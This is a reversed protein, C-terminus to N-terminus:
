WTWKGDTFHQLILGLDVMHLAFVRGVTSDSSGWFQRIFTLVVQSPYAYDNLTFHLHSWSRSWSPFFSLLKIDLWVIFSLQLPSSMAGTPSCISAQTHTQDRAGCSGFLVAWTIRYYFFLQVVLFWHSRKFEDWWFVSIASSIAKGMKLEDMDPEDKLLYGQDTWSSWFGGPPEPNSILDYQQTKPSSLVSGHVKRLEVELFGDLNVSFILFSEQYSQGLSIPQNDNLVGVFMM